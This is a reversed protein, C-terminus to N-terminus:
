GKEYITKLDRMAYPKVFKNLGNETVLDVKKQLATELNNILRMYAFMGTGQSLRVLFDVDSQETAEGRAVSGFVGAYEVDYERFIPSVKEKIQELAIDM